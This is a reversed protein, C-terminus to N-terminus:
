VIKDTNPNSQKIGFDANPRKCWQIGASMGKNTIDDVLTKNYYPKNKNNEALAWGLKYSLKSPNYVCMIYIPFERDDFKTKDYYNPQSYYIQIAQGDYEITRIKNLFGTFDRFQPDVYTNFTKGVYRKLFDNEKKYQNDTQEYLSLIEKKDEESIILRQGM